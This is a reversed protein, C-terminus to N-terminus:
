VDDEELARRLARRARALRSKVTGIEIALAAAIQDYSMGHAERLLFAARYDPALAAVARLLARSRQRRAAVRDPRDADAAVLEGPEVNRRRRRRRLEDVALNTAITLIWTSLRAAGGPDFGPLRRVVRVFTEQALDEVTADDRDVLLMRGLYGFVPRQYREIVARLADRDGRQARALTLDDIEDDVV